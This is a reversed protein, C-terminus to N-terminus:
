EYRVKNDKWNSFESYKNKFSIANIVGYKCIYGRIKLIAYRAKNASTNVYCLVSLEYLPLSEVM